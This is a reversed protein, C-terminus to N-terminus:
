YTRLYVFVVYLSVKSDQMDLRTFAAVREGVVIDKVGEGIAVVYGAIDNGTVYNYNRERAPHKYDKPNSAAAVNKILVEGQGPTPVPLDTIIRASTEDRLVGMQTKPLSEPAFSSSM